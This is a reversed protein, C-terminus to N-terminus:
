NQRADNESDDELSNKKITFSFQAGGDRLNTAYIEGGNREIMERSVILGLGTGKEGATGTTSVSNTLKFLKDIVEPELGVGHDSVSVLWHDNEERVKLDIFSGHYSFKVANSLLNRLVTSIMNIDGYATAAPPIDRRLTLKKEDLQLAIYKQMDDIMASLNFTIPVPDLRGTEVRSWNLLNFLLENLSLSSTYLEECLAHVKEPPLKQYNELMMNLINQQATIPNRLDHSILSFFKDKVANVQALESNRHKLKVNLKIYFGIFVSLIILLGILHNRLLRHSALSANQEAIRDNQEDVKYRTNFVNIQRESKENFLREQLAFAKKLYILSQAPNSKELIQSM